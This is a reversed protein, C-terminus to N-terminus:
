KRRSRPLPLGVRNLPPPPFEFLRKIPVGLAVALREAADLTVNTGDKELRWVYDRHLVAATALMVQSVNAALRINQVNQRFWEFAQEDSLEFMLPVRRQMFFTVPEVELARSLAAITRLEVNAATREINGVTGNRLGAMAALEIAALKSATRLALLRSAFLDRANERNQTM